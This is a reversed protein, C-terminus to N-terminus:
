YPSCDGTRERERRGVSGERENTIFNLFEVEANGSSAEKAILGKLAAKAENYQEQSLLWWKEPFLIEPM